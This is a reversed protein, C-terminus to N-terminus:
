QNDLNLLLNYRYLLEAIQNGYIRRQGVTFFPNSAGPPLNINFPDNIDQPNRLFDTVFVVPRDSFWYSQLQQKNILYYPEKGPFKPPIRNAGGDALILVTRYVKDEKGERWGAPLQGSNKDLIQNKVYDKGQNLYYSIGAATGVERSGEFIWLTDPNLWLKEEAIYVLNKSSRINQHFVFGMISTLYIIALSVVLVRISNRANHRLMETGAILWGLALIIAITIIFSKIAPQQNIAPLSTTLNPFFILLLCFCIGLLIFILGYVLHSTIQPNIPSRLVSKQPNLALKDSYFGACLIIYPPLAPLSYYVLRSPVPIFIIIPLLFALTLLLINNLNNQDKVVLNKRYKQTIKKCINQTVAPLFLIWPFCWIATLGLYGQISTRSVEYDPPFRKDLLRALHENIIFYRIFGPNAKEVAIFWPLVLALILLLGSFFKLYSFNAFKYKIAGIIVWITVVPIVAILGKALLGLALCFCCSFLYLWSKPNSLFKGFLYNSGLMLTTLLVDILVQHTFIFWGLTVSMMLVAIRSADIGWLDRSWRWVLVVGLWGAIAVPLRVAFETNGLISTSIAILWYLLPPKNLYPAGNLHPTIWDGRLVMERGVMAFHSEHPEYLGYMGLGLTMFGLPLILILLDLAIQRINSSFMSKVVLFIQKM